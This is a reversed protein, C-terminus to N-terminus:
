RSADGRAPQQRRGNGSYALLGSGSVPTEEVTTQKGRWRDNTVAGSGTSDTIKDIVLGNYRLIL